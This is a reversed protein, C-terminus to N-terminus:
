SVIQAFPIFSVKEVTKIVHIPVVECTKFINRLNSMVYVFTKHNLDLLLKLM